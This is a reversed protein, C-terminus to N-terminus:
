RSYVVRYAQAVANYVDEWTREGPPVRGQNELRTADLAQAALDGSWKVPALGEVDERSEERFAEILFEAVVPDAQLLANLAARAKAPDYLSNATRRASTDKSTMPTM